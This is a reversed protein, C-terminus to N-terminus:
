EALAVRPADTLAPAEEAPMEQAIWLASLTAFVLTQVFGSFLSFYLNLIGMPIPALFASTWYTFPLTAGNFYSNAFPAVNAGMASLINTSLNGLAWQVLGIIITGSLCNGFMRMATSIIPTWMTLLNIPLFVAFPEVYRHFYHWGSTRLATFQILAFMIISLTLPGALWDIISPLGTVGWIFSVFLYAFLCMFYGTFSEHSAGMRTVVFSHCVDYYLEGFFLFGKPRKLYTKNRLGRRAKIGLIIALILVILAVILSSYLPADMNWDFMHEIKYQYTGEAAAFIM